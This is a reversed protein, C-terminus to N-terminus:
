SPHRRSELNDKMETILQQFDGEAMTEKFRDLIVKLQAAEGEAIQELQEEIRAREEEAMDELEEETIRRVRLYDESQQRIQGPISLLEELRDRRRM